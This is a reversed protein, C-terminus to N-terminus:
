HNALGANADLSSQAEEVLVSSGEIDLVSNVSVHDYMARLHNHCYGTDGRRDGLRCRVGVYFVYSIYQDEV